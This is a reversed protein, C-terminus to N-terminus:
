ADLKLEFLDSKIIKQLFEDFFSFKRASQLLLAIVLKYNKM